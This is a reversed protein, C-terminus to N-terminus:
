EIKQDNKNAYVTTIIYISLCINALISLVIYNSITFHCLLAKTPLKLLDLKSVM